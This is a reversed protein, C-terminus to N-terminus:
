GHNKFLIKEIRDLRKEVSSTKELADRLMKQMLTQYPAGVEAARDKIAELLDGDIMMSIRHKHNKLDRYSEDLVDKTGYRIKSKKVKSSKM